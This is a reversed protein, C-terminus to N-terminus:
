DNSVKFFVDGNINAQAIEYEHAVEIFTEEQIKLKQAVITPIFWTVQICGECISQLTVPLEPLFLYYSLSAWLHDIYSLSENKIKENLKISLKSCYNEDYEAMAEQTSMVNDHDHNSEKSNNFKIYDVIKTVARFGALESKYDNIMKRLFKDGRGFHKCVSEIASMSDYKWNPVGALVEFVEFVNSAKSLLHQKQKPFFTAIYLRFSRFSINMEELKEAISTILIAYKGEMTSINEAM